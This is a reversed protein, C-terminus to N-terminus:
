DPNARGSIVQRFPQWPLPRKSVPASIIQVKNKAPAERSALTARVTETRELTQNLRVLFLRPERENVVNVPVVRKKKKKKFVTLEVSNLEATVLIRQVIELKRGM